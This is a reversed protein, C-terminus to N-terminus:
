RLDRLRLLPWFRFFEAFFVLFPFTVSLLASALWIESEYAPPGSTLPGTVAAALGGYLRALAVGIAIAAATNALGKMPQVLKGFLSNQLMNLIIITGFIFPIPVRVLFVVPDMRLLLAGFEFVAVGLTLAIATWVAGLVPQKMLSPFKTLPWLDFHLMLFMVALATVCVVLASWANFLGHPALSAVYVPAGRMFEYDFFIRFIVLTVGYCAALAAVGAAVPNPILANFPWGGWMIALWFMIAVSIITAHALMPTPPAIGGGAVIFFIPAIVAGAILTLLLLLLGKLPQPKARAFSPHECKWLVGVMIQAPILCQLIYSLWGSLTAYSFFSIFLLSVVIVATSAILGLAPQKLNAM